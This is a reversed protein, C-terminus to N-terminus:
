PGPKDPSESNHILAPIAIGAAAIGIMIL